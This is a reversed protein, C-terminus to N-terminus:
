IGNSKTARGWEVPPLEGFRKPNEMVVAVEPHLKEFAWRATEQVWNVSLQVYVLRVGTEQCFELADGLRKKTIEQSM